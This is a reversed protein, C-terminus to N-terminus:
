GNRKEHRLVGAKVYVVNADWVGPIWNGFSVINNSKLIVAGGNEISVHWRHEVKFKPSAIAVAIFAARLRTLIM